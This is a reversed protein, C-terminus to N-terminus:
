IGAVVVKDFVLSPTRLSSYIWPDDAVEILRTWFNLHNDAINMEAVNQVLEGKEYLKGIIGVSFDGTTANSNGGIFDTIFICRDLDKIIAELSRTGPPVIVNTVSGSNPEWGLKRGYYWDVLFENLVGKSILERKRTPFGDPDYPRSGLGRPIFPDDTITLMSSGIQKGKKDALFSRKQQINGASLPSALGYLIRGVSRNEIIVPLTETKVKKAGLLDLTRQAAETGTDKLPPLDNKYRCGVFHYGAPRRDGADQATMSAGNRFSTTKFSGEFGNSTMVFEEYSDDSEDAEVSIVKDGGKKLCADEITKAMRHREESTLKDYGEDSVQLDASSRGEYYKPDPLTRYPDEEMLRATFIIDDIFTKLTSTRFDPTSKSAYKKDAFVELNLNQSTAEKIIEPKRDRYHINVAKRKSINVRCDNVGAKKVNDIIWTALERFDQQTKIINNM